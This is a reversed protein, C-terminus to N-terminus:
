ILTVDAIVELLAPGDHELISRMATALDKQESVRIGKAGCNNAYDAFNPNVLSTAWVDFEGARQEKSIKGLESNNLIILKIPMKYKVLTTIEALYQCLGGDGAVAIIPRANGVAAWAG